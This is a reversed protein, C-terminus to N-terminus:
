CAWLRFVYIWYPDINLWKSILDDNSNVPFPNISSYDSVPRKACRMSAVRRTIKSVRTELISRIGATKNLTCFICYLTRKQCWTRGSLSGSRLFLYKILILPSAKAKTRSLRGVGCWLEAHSIKLLDSLHAVRGIWLINNPHYAWHKEKKLVMDTSLLVRCSRLIRGSIFSGLYDTYFSFPTTNLPDQILVM